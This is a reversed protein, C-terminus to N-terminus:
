PKAFLEDGIVVLLDVTADHFSSDQGLTDLLRREDNAWVLYDWDSDPRHTNNARSGMLWGGTLWRLPNGEVAQEIFAGIMLLAGLTVAPFTNAIARLKQWRTRRQNTSPLERREPSIAGSGATMSAGGALLCRHQV